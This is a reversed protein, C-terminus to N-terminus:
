LNSKVANTAISFLEVDNVDNNELSVELFYGRIEAGEIRSDKKAYCFRGIIPTNIINDIILTSDTIGTIEGILQNYSNNIQYLKDGVCINDSISSFIINNNLLTDIVGIGQAANGHLDNEDENKRIYAFQKSEKQVFENYDITSATYNTKLSVKWPKNSEQVLNKFVKDDSPNYNIITKIKSNYQVGYFNNRVINDKDYHKYLQGNKISFFENNLSCIAEPIYKLFHTWGKNKESFCTMVADEGEPQCLFYRKKYPDYGGLKNSYPHKIFLDRFFSVMGYNIESTGDLSLRIPTGRRSSTYYLRFADWAISEPNKGVGNDGKLPVQNGLIKPTTTVIVEGNAQRLLDEGFLVYSTKDEQFVIINTDRSFLFQISNYQKDLEKFNITSANFANLGNLNSSEVFPEGYTLDAFRRVEKYPEISTSTPKLDINLYNSNVADKIRYSEAGNGQTYCNFFDLDIICSNTDDQNQYNGQHFGDIIDFTQPTEYFVNNDSQNPQTELILLGESIVVDIQCSLKSREFTAGPELGTVRLRLSNNTTNRVFEWNFETEKVGLDIVEAEWWEQFNVYDDQVIFDKEYIENYGDSEYNRFKIHIKSGATIPYDVYNGDSGKFGVLTSYSGIEVSPHSNKSDNYRDYNFFNTNNSTNMNLGNPKIKMYLGSSEIIEEENVDINGEIFDKELSSVELVRIKKIEKVIGDFDSKVILVDGEKVKDKNAGELKLWRFLGEEYLFNIFITHYQLPKAKVVIKYTDAWYPAINKINVQLKNQFGCLSHPIHKTNTNSTLVTSKRSWKDQYLVGVEYPMNTKCSAYSETKSYTVKSKQTFRFQIETLSTNAPNDTSDLPTSDVRYFLSISRLAISNNNAANITFKTNSELVADAIPDINFSNLFKTTLVEEILFIFDPDESLEIPSSYDKPLIFAIFDDYVGNYIDVTELTLNLTLRNGKKLSQNIPSTFTIPLLIRNSLGEITPLVDGTIEKSDLNVTYDMKIRNGEADVLNYGELYNGFIPLNELLGLAKAKRPVNDFTRYLEKEAIISYNKNNEFVFEKEENHTVWGEDEKNFSAILYLVNSNSSKAILEIDTVQKPGINFTIKIANFSNVMGTNEMTQYDLDFEKPNFNYNSYSSIASREGDRYRYRYGITVFANELANSEDNSYFPNLIPSNKPQKKIWFIDEEEFDNEAWSKAREINILCPEINNDTWGLLDEKTDESIIKVVGTIRYGVKLNLVRTDEPRTDKLVISSEKKINDWELLFCGIDSKEFWYIKDESEDEYKGLNIPNAGLDIDTIKKNSLPKEIAGVDSGESNIIEVQEAERYEGDPLLREDIDLNMRGKVFNRKIM